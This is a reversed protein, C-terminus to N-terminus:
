PKNIDTQQQASFPQWQQSHPPQWWLKLGRDLLTTLLETSSVWKNLPLLGTELEENLLKQSAIAALVSPILGGDKDAMVAVKVTATQNAKLGTIAFIVGGEDKGFRGVLWSFARVLGTLNEWKPYGTKARIRASLNLLHNLFTFETGAKFAVTKVNYLQPLYDLDAMELVLHTLRKGVPPPFEVWEPETWGHVTVNLGNRPQTFPRGVGWLMTHFMAEGRHKKTDPAAFTCVSHIEDFYNAFMETFLIEMSPAVSLGSLVTINAYSINPQLAQVKHAFKRDEALDIYHTETEIAVQLPNFPLYQFPGACHVILDHNKALKTLTHKHKLDCVATQVRGSAIWQPQLTPNRSAVTITATTFQLLDNVLYQGYFGSGGIVMVKKTSM